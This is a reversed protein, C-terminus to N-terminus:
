WLEKNAKNQLLMKKMVSYRAICMFTASYKSREWAVSPGTEWMMGLGFSSPGTELMMGSGSVSPGTELTM